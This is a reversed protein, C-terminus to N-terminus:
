RTVWPNFKEESKLKDAMSQAERRTEFTGVRVRYMSAGGRPSEVYVKYGKGGLRRAIADAEARDNVAAV